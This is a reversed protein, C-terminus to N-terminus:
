EQLWKTVLAKIMTRAKVVSPQDGPASPHTWAHHSAGPVWITDIDSVPKLISNAHWPDVEGNPYVLRSGVPTVGGYYANTYGVNEAVKAKTIGWTQECYVLFTDLTMLGQVFFCHSGIECTQYFAFETCTQYGWYDAQALPAKTAWKAEIWTQQANHVNALRQVDDGATNNAMIACISKINCAPATCTPDNGQSVFYAVGNGAFTRQNDPRLLWDASPLAFLQALKTRGSASSFMKGINAHGTAIAESCAASGGVDNDSVTYAEATVDYYGRMDVEARVPASSAVAGHVLHPFKIRFWGALMGPYSGGWSIWKNASTIGWQNSAQTQQQVFAVLDGLAQRSSLFRLGGSVTPDSVPCATLNHCGYYRHEVAFMLAKQEKLWEVAVNCHVSRVVSAGTLPPGEGGVCLFVPADSGPTWFTDNVYYAQQWTKMNNGDFHDQDVTHFHPAPLSGPAERHLRARVLADDGGISRIPSSIAGVSAAVAALSLLQMM